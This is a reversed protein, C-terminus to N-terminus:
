FDERELSNQFSGKRATMYAHTGGKKLFGIAWVGPTWSGLFKLADTWYLLNPNYKGASIYHRKFVFDQYFKAFYTEGPLFM